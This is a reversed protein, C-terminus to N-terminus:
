KTFLNCASVYFDLDQSPTVRGEFYDTLYFINDKPYAHHFVRLWTSGDPEKIILSRNGTNNIYTYSSLYYFSM